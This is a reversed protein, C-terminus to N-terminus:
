ISRAINLMEDETLAHHVSFWYIVGDNEWVISNGDLILGEAGHIDVQVVSKAGTEFATNENAIRQQMSIKKGTAANVFDIDIYDGSIMGDDDKYQSSLVFSYGEPLYAPLKVEFNMNDNVAAIDENVLMMEAVEAQWQAETVIITKGTLEDNTLHSIKEGEKTYLSFNQDITSLGKIENGEQDFIMGELEAPIPVWEAELEEDLGVVVHPLNFVERIRNMMDQAVATQTFMAGVVLITAGATVITKWQRKMPRGVKMRLKNKTQYYVRQQDSEQSFDTASLRQSLAMFEEDIEDLYAKDKM